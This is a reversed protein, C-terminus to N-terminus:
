TSIKNTKYASYTAGSITAILILACSSYSHIYYSNGLENLVAQNFYKDNQMDQIGLFIVLSMSIGVISLWWKKSAVFFSILSILITQAWMEEVSAM